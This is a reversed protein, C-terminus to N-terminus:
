TAAKRAQAVTVKGFRGFTKKRTKGHIRGQLFFTKSCDPSVLLGFGTMDRDWHVVQRGQEPKLSEVATKTQKLKASTTVNSGAM